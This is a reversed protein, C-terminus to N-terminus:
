CIQAFDTIDEEWRKRTDWDSQQDQIKLQTRPEKEAAKTLGRESPSTAMRLALRSKMKQTDRELMSDECKGDKRDRRMQKKFYEIWDGEEIETTDIEEEADFEFSVDSDQDNHTNSSQGDESEDGSSSLDNTDTEENTKKKM